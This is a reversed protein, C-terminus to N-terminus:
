SSLLDFGLYEAVIWGCLCSAVPRPISAPRTVRAPSAAAAALPRLPLRRRLTSSASAALARWSLPLADRGGVDGLHQPNGAGGNVAVKGMTHRERGSENQGVAGAVMWRMSSVSCVPAAFRIFASPCVALFMARNQTTMALYQRAKEEGAVRTLTLIDTTM